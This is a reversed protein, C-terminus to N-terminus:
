LEGREMREVWAALIDTQLDVDLAELERMKGLMGEAAIRGRETKPDCAALKGALLGVRKRLEAVRDWRRDNEAEQALEWGSEPKPIVASFLDICGDDETQRQKRREQWTPKYHRKAIKQIEDALDAIRDADHLGDRIEACLIMLDRRIATLAECANLLEEALRRRKSKSPKTM